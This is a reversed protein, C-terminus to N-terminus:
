HNAFGRVLDDIFRHVRSLGQWNIKDLTDQPMHYDGHRGTTINVGRFGLEVFSVHDSYRADVTEHQANLDHKTATDDVITHVRTDTQPHAVRIKRDRLRGLMDFNIALGSSTTLGPRTTFGTAYRDALAHAMLRSGLLGLEEGAPAGFIIPPHSDPSDEALARALEVLVAVGSANDDAGPHLTAPDDSLSGAHGLGLGDYHATIVIPATTNPKNSTATTDSPPLRGLINYLTSTQRELSLEGTITLELPRSQPTASADIKQQLVDLDVDTNALARVAAKETLYGVAIGALASAPRLRPLQDAQQEPHVGHGLPDNVLLLASAGKSLAVAAKSGPSLLYAAEGSTLEDRHPAPAGSLAVVIKDRVDVDAYDDYGISPASLGYGVFVVQADFRHDDSFSAPSFEVGQALIHEDIQLAVARSPEAHTVASFATFYGDEGAPELGIAEFQAAIYDRAKDIGDSGNARGGLEPSALYSTHAKLRAQSSSPQISQASV